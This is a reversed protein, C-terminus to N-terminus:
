KPDLQGLFWGINMELESSTQLGRAFLSKLRKQTEALRMSEIFLRGDMRLDVESPLTNEVVRKKIQTIASEPFSAIRRALNEVFIPLESDALARNIWGYREALDASLDDACLLVELARSRGMLRSLHQIAGSCPVVGIGAEPHGFIASERGAFRMDCALIFESGAGRVRGGIEAISIQRLTSLRTFFVGLSPELMAHTLERRVEEMQTMDFHASFYDPVASRFVIVRISDDTEVHRVLAILDCVVAQGILNLPPANLSAFLVGGDARTSITKLHLMIM